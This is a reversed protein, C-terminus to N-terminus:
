LFLVKFGVYFSVKDCLASIDFTILICVILVPSYIHRHKDGKYFLCLRLLPFSIYGLIAVLGLFLKVTHKLVIHRAVSQNINQALAYAIHTYIDSEAIKAFIRM